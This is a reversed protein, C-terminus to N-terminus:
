CCARPQRPAAPLLLRVPCLGYRRQFDAAVASQLYDAQYLVGACLHALPQLLNPLREGKLILMTMEEPTAVRVEVSSSEGRGAGCRADAGDDTATSCASREAESAGAPQCALVAASGGRQRRGEARVVASSPARWPVHRAAARGGHRAATAGCGPARPPAGVWALTRQLCGARPGAGQEGREAVSPLGQRVAAVLLAAVLARCAPRPM